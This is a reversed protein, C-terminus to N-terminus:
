PALLMLAQERYRECAARDHRWCAMLPVHEGTELALVARWIPDGDSDEDQEIEVGMIEHRQWSMDRRRWPLRGSLHVTRRLRDARLILREAQGAAYFAVIIGAFGAAMAGAAPLGPNGRELEKAALVLFCAGVFGFLGALLWLIPTSDSLSDPRSNTGPNM